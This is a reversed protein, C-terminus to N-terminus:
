QWTPHFDTWGGALTGFGGTGFALGIVSEIYVIQFTGNYQGLTGDIVAAGYIATTGLADFTANAKEADTIFLVGFLSAGGNFRTTEAASVLFVPAKASGIQTDANVTCTTGTFWYLGFSTEDLISCDDIVQFDAKVERYRSKPVGFMNEFLDCPFNEDAVLDIGLYQDGQQSYSLRKRDNRCACNGPCKFDEPLTDQGYWEHRECTSWSGGSPDVVLQNPCDPNANMWSSMPVGLGGGNPNPVIEATGTPPFTSRTTLPVGPGGAGAGVGFSGVKEAVLAEASCNAGNTDCDAQGRALLTVLYYRNDQLAPDTTCGQVIPDADRDVHLM